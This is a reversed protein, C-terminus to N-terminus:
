QALATEAPSANRANTSHHQIIWECSAPDGPSSATTSNPINTRNGNGLCRTADDLLELVLQGVREVDKMTLYIQLSVRSYVLGNLSFTNLRTDYESLLRASVAGAVASDDTPWRVNTMWATMSEPQLIETNWLESLFEGTWIALEHGYRM